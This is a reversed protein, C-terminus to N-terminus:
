ESGDSDIMETIAELRAQEDAMMRIYMFERKM